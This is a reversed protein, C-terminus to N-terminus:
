SAASMSNIGKEERLSVMGRMAIEDRLRSAALAFDQEGVKTFSGSAALATSSPGQPKQPAALGIGQLIKSALSSLLPLLPPVPNARQVSQTYIKPRMRDLKDAAM